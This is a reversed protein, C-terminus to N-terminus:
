QIPEGDPTTLESDLRSEFHEVLQQMQKWLGEVQSADAQGFLLDEFRHRYNKLRILLQADPDRELLQQRLQTIAISMSEEVLREAQHESAIEVPIKLKKCLHKLSQFYADRAEFLRRRLQEVAQYDCTLGMQEFAMARAKMVITMPLRPRKAVLRNEVDCCLQEVRQIWYNRESEKMPAM